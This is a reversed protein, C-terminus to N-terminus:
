TAAHALGEERLQRLRNRLAVRKVPSMRDVILVGNLHDLEHQAARAVLGRLRKEHTRGDLDEWELTIEVPREIRARIEPLSLCGEEYSAKKPSASRLRPNIVVLPMPVEPNLRAGTEDRDSPEPVDLVFIARTEGIQQAALGIGDEARMTELMDAALRRLEDDFQRVPTAKQRLVPDGYLRIRRVM